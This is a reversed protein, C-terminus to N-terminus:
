MGVKRYDSLYWYGRNNKYVHDAWVIENKHIPNKDFVKPYVSLSSKKGSGLSQTELIYVWIKNYKSKMPKVDLIVLKRRDNPDGTSLDVYGFVEKQFEIKEKITFDPYYTSIIWENYKNLLSGIDKIKYSKLINGSKGKDTAYEKLYAEFENGYKQNLKDIKTKSISAAAGKKLEEFIDTIVLLQKPTGYDSFFNLKILIELQRMNLSTEVNIEKLLQIFNEAKTTKGLEYLQDGVTKNLYKISSISKYIEKTDYNVTYGGSSQKFKIPKLKINWHSLEKSLKGSRTLDDEYLSLAVAFYDLPYHSKLYAGYISDIAVSLSHSANFSYRAADNVVQWTGEFGNENGLKTIWGDKLELRLEELESEKFKKKSIKKIIDYTNKEEQGLWVLYKMISEQYMMYHFSDDLLDDLEKVKTSYPKREIFNELLSAFGPRIAAVFASMEALNKPKYRMLLSTAFDSDAQNITCTLGKEYVEWVKKDCNNILTPIDDINKGIREYVQSIIDWVTVTLFDNKLYKYYDCNYGDLCCCIIDKVKILGVEESIPKDLLLFSCPSPSISEIVGLFYKNSLEYIDKWEEDDKYKDLNKAVENYKKFDKDLAKCMLRFASSEQMPKYVLMYYINDNGLIDKFSKIVPEVNAFNLDIDPLSRSSLIRESSMFRSPYLTVPSKMRDVETLGLFKNILFSVASGRGSRTLVANNKNIADKVGYHNLIFYMAMGCEKITNLESEIEHIYANKKDDSFGKSYEYFNEYVIEKLKEDPDGNYINPIKFEKDTYIEEANDFVLTNNLAEYIELDSLVGQQRYREVVEDYTPYDLIFESEDEYVIGKGKLFLDRYKADEKNIYHSDNAHIIKVNYKKSLSILRKNYIIQKEDNHSQVELYFNDKFHNKLPLFFMDFWDDKNMRSAICATTVVVDDPNLSLLLDLDIRPKYYFGNTNAVSMIKNIQKRGSDTMGILMIHSMERDSQDNIDDVYYAEVGFLCRLNYEECLRQATYIDGQFGHETTFYEKHGLEVARKMYDEPKVICDLTRVNSEHTHKHYNIYRNM